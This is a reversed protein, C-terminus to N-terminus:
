HTNESTDQIPTSGPQVSHRFVKPCLDVLLQGEPVRNNGRPLQKYERKSGSDQIKHGVRNPWWCLLGVHEARVTEAYWCLSPSLKPGQQVGTSVKRSTSKVGRLCTKAHKGTLYYSLWRATPQLLQSRNIKLLLNNHCVTDFAASVVVCITQDSPKRQNFGLAIYTTM